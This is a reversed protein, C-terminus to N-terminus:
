SQIQSAKLQSGGTFQAKGTKKSITKRVLQTNRPDKMEAKSLPLTQFHRIGRTNAYLITRKPSRSGFRKMWFAIRWVKSLQDVFGTYRMCSSGLIGQTVNGHMEIDIWSARCVKLLLQFRPHRYLLSSRPQEVIFVGHKALCLIFALVM